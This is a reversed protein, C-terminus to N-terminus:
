SLANAVVNHKGQVYIINPGYEELLLQWRMVRTHTNFQKYTLNQHDTYVNLTKGLLINQFEKLTEVIALLERETTTYRRQTPTLKRSYFAIPKGKQAIVAGLQLDSANTHIEFPKNFDPYSLLVEKCIIIKAKECAQQEIETWQFKVTKSCFKTLPALVESRRIWLDKYYNIMGIFHRLQWKTTPAKLRLMAEIKKPLPQIGQRTIWYGLYELEGKGFFSKKTNVKLRAEQLRNFVQELKALHDMFDQNMILLLDDIYTRIFDLGTM